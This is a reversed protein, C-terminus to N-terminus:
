IHPVLSATNTYWGTWKGTMGGELNERLYCPIWTLPSCFSQRPTLPGPFKLQVHTFADIFMRCFPRPVGKGGARLIWIDRRLLPPCCAAARFAKPSLRLILFLRESLLFNKELCTFHKWPVIASNWSQHFLHCVFGSLTGRPACTSVRILCKEQCM